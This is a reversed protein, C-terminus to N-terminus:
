VGLLNRELKINVMQKIEKVVNDNFTKRMMNLYKEYNFYNNFAWDRFKLVERQSLFKTPLPEFKPSMQAYAEWDDPLRINTKKMKEYLPSGPYAVLCYFNAYECKLEKAFKLTEKMTIFSDEWFGFMFNGLVYIGYDKTMQVIDKIKQNNFNGKLVKRRINENGSEIGYALWRIGAKRFKELLQPNVLDIRAYAWINLDDYGRAIIADCILNARKPNFTFLEDMFKIHKINYKTVLLDIDAIIDEITRQEWIKGYFSKICCNHVLMYNAFYNNNNKCEFNYVKTQKNIKKISKIMAFHPCNNHQITKEQFISKWYKRNFNTKMHCSICLSILNCKQNNKKNYDIHHVHLVEGWVILSEEETMNCNQCTYNDRKRIESRLDEIFDSGYKTNEYPIGTGGMQLSRIKRMKNKFKSNSWLKKVFLSNEESHNLLYHTRQCSKCRKAKYNKLKIRCDICFNDVKSIGNKFNPNNIKMRYSLKKRAEESIDHPKIKNNEWLKKMRLSLQKSYKKLTKSIKEKTKKNFMPNYLKKNFSIKDKWTILLIKDNKNLKKAEIWGKPTYVKHNPTIKIKNGEEMEIELMENVTRSMINVVINEILEKKNEDFSIIKDKITIDKIKKNIGKSTIIKTEGDLCFECNFPCGLSTYTVGYPQRTKHGWAHWNHARYKDMPLLDWKPTKWKTPSCPLYDYTEVKVYTSLYNKLIEMTHKQQIHASPHSGTALIIVRDPKYKLVEKVTENYNLDLVEADIIIDSEFRHAMLALWIPPEIASLRKTKQYQDKKNNSKLMLTKM